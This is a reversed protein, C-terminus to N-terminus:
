EAGSGTEAEYHMRAISMSAEFDLENRDCWHMLDSLLDVIADDYDTGTTCQFHRLAAAAWEARDDNMEEPDPPLLKTM